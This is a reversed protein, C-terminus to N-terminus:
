ISAFLSSGLEGRAKPVALLPLGIAESLKSCFNLLITTLCSPPSEGIELGVSALGLNLTSDYCLLLM